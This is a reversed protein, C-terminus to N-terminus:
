AEQESLAAWRKLGASPEFRAGLHQALAELGKVVEGRGRDNAYRLPGGRHPAWGTGLVMALDIAEADALGEDWCAAAENVMLLVLRERAQSIQMAKSYGGMIDAGGVASNATLLAIAAHHLKKSKGKYAYFGAGSKQGLWGNKQLQEFTQPLEQLRPEGQWRAAFLPQMARAIHGTVDIGVQDLLELPGMPMGFRRMTRDIGEAAVGQGVLLVAEAMYPMLVRNVVFGPSDKVVVPTKGVAVMWRCLDAVTEDSTAPARVVEVLPM